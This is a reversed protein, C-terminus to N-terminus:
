CTAAKDILRSYVKSLAIAATCGAIGGSVIDVKLALKKNM